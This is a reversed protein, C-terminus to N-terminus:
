KEGLAFARAWTRLGGATRVVRGVARDVNEAGTVAPIGGSRDGTRGGVGVDYRAGRDEAAVKEDLRREVVVVGPTGYLPHEADVAPWQGERAM